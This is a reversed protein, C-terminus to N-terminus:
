YNVACFRAISGDPHIYQYILEFGAFCVANHSSVKGFSSVEAQLPLLEPSIEARARTAQKSVIMANALMEVSHHGSLSSM